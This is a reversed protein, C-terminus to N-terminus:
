AGRSPAVSRFNVSRSLISASGGERFSEDRGDPAACSRAFVHHALAEVTPWEFLISLPLDIEFRDEIRAMIQMAMLSNGGLEFFDDDVGIRDLNLVQAWIAAVEAEFATRPLSAPEVQPPAAAVLSRLSERDIKGMATTPMADLFVFEAPIMFDPLREALERRLDRETVRKSAHAVVFAVLKNDGQETIGVMVATEALSQLDRLVDELYTMDVRHGRIKVTSDQRGLYILGHDPTLVGRDGTLYIREGSASDHRFRESTLDPRRWYGPSMSGTKVVIEGSTGPEVPKGEQDVLTVGAGDLPFGAPVAADTTRTDHDIYYLCYDLVEKAGLLNILICEPATHRQYQRVCEWSLAEGIMEIVRFSPFMSQGADRQGSHHPALMGVLQSFVSPTSRFASIRAQDIWRRLCNVDDRKFDFLYLTAGVLLPRWLETFFSTGVLLSDESCLHVANNRAIAGFLTTRHTQIIGKPEGTSGSTMVIRAPVQPSAPLRLDDAEESEAVADLDIVGDEAGVLTRAVAVDAADTVIVRADLLQVVSHNRAPLDSLDVSAFARGAKLAALLAVIKAAGRSCGIVIPLGEPEAQQVIVRALRNAEANLQRYSLSRAPSVVAIREPTKAVQAEILSHITAAGVDPDM